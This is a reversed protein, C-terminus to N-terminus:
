AIGAGIVAAVVLLFIDFSSAGPRTAASTTLATVTATTATATATSTGNVFDYIAIGKGALLIMMKNTKPDVTVVHATINDTKLTQLLTGTAALAGVFLEFKNLDYNNL